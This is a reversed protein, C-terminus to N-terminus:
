ANEYTRVDVIFLQIEVRGKITVRRPSAMLSVSEKPFDDASISYCVFPIQIGSDDELIGRSHKDGMPIVQCVQCKRFFYFPESNGTGFPEMAEIQDMFEDDVECFMMEDDAFLRDERAPRNFDTGYFASIFAKKFEPLNEETLSIGVAMPHGGFSSLLKRNSTLVELINLQACSRGSGLLEGSAADHCLIIAPRCFHKSVKTALLGIIGPHWGEGVIVIGGRHDRSLETRAKQLAEAYAKREVSRRKRNFRELIYAHKQAESRNPSKLLDVSVMPDGVRGAANIKPALRRSIDNTTIRGEMYGAECLARIGPRNLTNLLKLGNKVLCRNEGKMPSVDAVTGMAVLDLGVRLDIEVQQSTRTIASKIFAHCVKFVVGVGALSHLDILEKKLRPNVIAYAEPLRVGPNHHDTVILDIGFERAKLCAEFSTIGCDASIILGAGLKHIKEVTQATPGYGDEMRNSVFVQANAGYAKLVWEFLVASTVGDTDYDGHVYIKENSDIAQWLREVTKEMDPLRYPDTLLDLPARLYNEATKIGVGRLLLSRFIPRRLTFNESFEEIKSEDVDSISWANGRDIDLDYQTDYSEMKWTWEPGSDSTFFFSSRISTAGTGSLCDAIKLFLM